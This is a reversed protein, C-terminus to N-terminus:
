ITKITVKSYKMAIVYNAKKFDDVDASKISFTIKKELPSDAKIIAIADGRKITPTGRNNAKILPNRIPYVITLGHPELKCETVLEQELLLRQSELEKLKSKHFEIQSDFERLEEVKTVLKARRM